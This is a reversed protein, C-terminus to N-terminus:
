WSHSRLHNLDNCFPTATTDEVKYPVQATCSCDACVSCLRACRIYQLIYAVVIVKPYSACCTFLHLATNPVCVRFSDATDSKLEPAKLLTM